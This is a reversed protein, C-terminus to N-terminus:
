SKRYVSVFLNNVYEKPLLRKLLTSLPDTGSFYAVDLVEFGLETLQQNLLAATSVNRLHAFYRPYGTLQFLLREMRRYLSQRNPMSVLLLGGPKLMQDIQQLVIAMEDIYELLSSAIIVDQGAYAGANELPITQVYYQLMPSTKTRRCLSIMPESGDIGTVLCGKGALYRSFVGSGCGLDLVHNGSVIYQEFFATWVRYREQFAASSEYRSAFEHAIASHYDVANM